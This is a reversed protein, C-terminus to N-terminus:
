ASSLIADYTISTAIVPAVCGNCQTYSLQPVPGIHSARIVLVVAGVGVMSWPAATVHSKYCLDAPGPCSLHLLTAICVSARRLGSALFYTYQHHTLLSLAASSPPQLLFFHRHLLPSRAVYVFGVSRRPIRTYCSQRTHHGCEEQQETGPRLPRAGGGTILGRM